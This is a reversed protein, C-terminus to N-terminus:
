YLVEHIPGNTLLVLDLDCNKMGLKNVSSGFAYLYCEVYIYYLVTHCHVGTPSYESKKQYFLKPVVNAPSVPTGNSSSLGIHQKKSM